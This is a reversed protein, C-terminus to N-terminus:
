NNGALFYKSAEMGLATVEFAREGGNILPVNRIVNLSELVEFELTINLQGDWFQGYPNHEIAKIIQNSWLANITQVIETGVQCQQPQLQSVIALLRMQVFSLKNLHELISLKRKDTAFQKMGSAAVVKALSARKRHDPEFGVNEAMNRFMALAEESEFWSKDLLQDPITSLRDKMASIASEINRIRIEDAKDFLLHDLAGGVTPIASVVARLWSNKSPLISIGKEEKNM